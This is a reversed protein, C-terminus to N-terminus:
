RRPVQTIWYETTPTPPTSFRANVAWLRGAAFTATTPVDFGPSTLERVLTGSTLHHGLRIEAVLNDMNRVVFLRSGRLELGDGNTLLYGGLDVQVTKGTSPEVRFLLGTNSQVVLLFGREAVIGNANFGEIYQLDGTLPLTTAAEPGPLENGSLPVVALQPVMSDTAYVADRTVVLDNLFGADFTYTALLDGTRTDYARVTGTAGGAVWLVQRAADYEVGVAVRGAVGPVLISGDGTRVDAQWIAGDALSGVYVTTGRGTTIGEPAFGDPLDIRTPFTGQSRATAAGASTASVLGVALLAVTTLVVAIRHLRRM